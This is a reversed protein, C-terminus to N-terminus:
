KDPKKKTYRIEVKDEYEQIEGYEMDEDIVEEALTKIDIGKAGRKLPKQQSDHEKWGIYHVMDFTAPLKGTYQGERVKFLHEYIAAAAIFTDRSVSKRANLSANGEGVSQLFNMLQFADNFYLTKQDATATVLKYNVKYLIQGIDTLHFMPSVHPSVGGEREQEGLSLAIRLEQLTDGGMATGILAGDPQLSLLCKELTQGIKNLWHLQLNNVILNFYNEPFSWNEEDLYLGTYKFSPNLNKIEKLSFDLSEKCSDIITLGKLNLFNNSHIDRAWLHAMPGIFCANSFNRGKISGLRSLIDQISLEHYYIESAQINKSIRRKHLIKLGRDFVDKLVGKSGM